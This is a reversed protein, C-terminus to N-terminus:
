LVLKLFRSQLEEDENIWDYKIWLPARFIDELKSVKEELDDASLVSSLENESIQLQLKEILLKINGMKPLSDMYDEFGSIHCTLIAGKEVLYLEFLDDDFYHVALIPSPIYRSLEIAEDRVEGWSYDHLVTVWNETLNGIYYENRTKERQTYYKILANKVIELNTEQIQINTFKTGM